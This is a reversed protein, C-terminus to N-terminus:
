SNKIKDIINTSSVGDVFPILIVEGGNETVIESGVITSIEYDGGKTLIDPRLTSILNLPTEEAFLVIADVFNLSALLIARSNEDIIPRGRGKLKQISNDSNIGVILKDGLDATRALM